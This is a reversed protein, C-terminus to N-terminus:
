WAKVRECADSVVDAKDAYVEDTGKGCRVVDKVAPIDRSQVTDSGGGAYFRGMSTDGGYGILNDAGSGGYVDDKGQGDVMEDGGGLGRIKEANKTGKIQEAHDTGVVLPLDAFAPGVALLVVLLMAVLAGATPKMGKEEEEL